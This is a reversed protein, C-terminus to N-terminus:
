REKAVTALTNVHAKLYHFYSQTRTQTAANLTNLFNGITDEPFCRSYTNTLFIKILYGTPETFGAHKVRM